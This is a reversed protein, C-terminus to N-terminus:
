KRGKAKRYANTLELVEYPGLDNRLDLFKEEALAVKGPHEELGVVPEKDAILTEVYELAAKHLLDFSHKGSMWSRLKGSIKMRATPQGKYFAVPMPDLLKM